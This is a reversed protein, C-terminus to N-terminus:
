FVMPPSHNNAKKKSHSRKVRVTSKHRGGRRSYINLKTITIGDKQWAQKEFM